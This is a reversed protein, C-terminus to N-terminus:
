SNYAQLCANHIQKAFTIIHNSFRIELATLSMVAIADYRRLRMAQTAIMVQATVRVASLQSSIGKGL